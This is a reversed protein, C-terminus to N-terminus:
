PNAKNYETIFDQTINTGPAAYFVSNSQLAGGIEIIVVIGREAAFKQMATRLKEQIPDTQDAYAKQGEREVDESKRKYELKLQEYTEAFQAQQNQAISGQRAQAELGTIRDALARLEKTRPEFSRNLAEIARKLENIQTSFTGVDLMAIRGRPITGVNAGGGSPRAPAQAVASGALALLLGCALAARVPNLRRIKHEKV